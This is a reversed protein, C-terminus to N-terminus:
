FMSRKTDTVSRIQGMSGATIAPQAAVQEIVLRIDRVGSRYSRRGARSSYGGRRANSRVGRSSRQSGRSRRTRNYAM